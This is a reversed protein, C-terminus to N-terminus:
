LSLYDAPWSNIPGSGYKKIDRGTFLTWAIAPHGEHVPEGCYDCLYDRKATGPTYNCYEGEYPNSGYKEEHKEGCSKCLIDRKM